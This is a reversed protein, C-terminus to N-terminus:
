AMLERSKTEPMIVIQQTPPIKEISWHSIAWGLIEEVPAREIEKPPAQGLLKLLTHLVLGPDTGDVPPAGTQKSLKHGRSDVLIPIHAYAPSPYGLLRQLHIQRPTNDLLDAGRLVETVGAQHDDVVVALQYAYFGDRRRVIFDGFSSALNQRYCGQIRDKFEIPHHHVEVRLAHAQTLDLRRGRCRGSYVPGSSELSKRSCVCPYLRGQEELTQLAQQYSELQRSQYHIEADWHLGFRELTRLIRDAAGPVCRPTDIDDIRVLWQGQQQRAQLFGALATYLSGLHLPGTPSPAFRGRYTTETDTM